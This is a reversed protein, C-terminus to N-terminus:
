SKPDACCRFGTSYDHYSTPHATTKYSCGPGNRYTDSYYGGKFAGKPDDIWEHLNGVMDFVGYGNTCKEKKGAPLLGNPQQNVRPDNMKAYDNFKFGPFVRLITSSYSADHDHENCAGPEFAEGYPYTTRQPGMCAKQWEAVRCLRKGANECARKAEAGSIYGQPIQGPRQVAKYVKGPDPVMFPSWPSDGGASTEVLAAEYRDICITGVVAMERPCGNAARGQAAGKQAANGDDVGDASPAGSKTKLRPASFGSAYLPGKFASSGYDGPAPPESTSLTDKRARATFAAKRRSKEGNTGAFVPSEDMLTGSDDKAGDFLPRGPDGSRAGPAAAGLSETLAGASGPLQADTSVSKPAGPYQPEYRAAVSAQKKEPVPADDKEDCGALALVAVAAALGLAANRM